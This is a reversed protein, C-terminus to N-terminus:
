RANDEDSDAPLQALRDESIFRAARRRRTLTTRCENALIRFMWARFRQQETYRDLAKLVRLFTEHVADEADARHGIMRYAFRWCEDYYRRVLIAGAEPDGARICRILEADPTM